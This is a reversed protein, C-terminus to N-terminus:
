CATGDSDCAYDEDDTFEYDSGFADADTESGAYSTSYETSQASSETRLDMEDDSGIPTLPSMPTMDRQSAQENALPVTQATSRIDSVPVHVHPSATADLFFRDVEDGESSSQEGLVVVSEEMPEREYAAQWMAREYELQQLRADREANQQAQWELLDLMDQNEQWDAVVRGHRWTEVNATLEALTYQRVAEADERQTTTIIGGHTLIRFAEIGLGELVDEQRGLHAAEQEPTEFEPVGETAFGDNQVVNELEVIARWRGILERRGQLETLVGPRDISAELTLIESEALMIRQGLPLARFFEELNVTDEYIDTNHYRTILAARATALQNYRAPPLHNIRAELRALQSRLAQVRAIIQPSLMKTSATSHEHSNYSNPLCATWTKPRRLVRKDM